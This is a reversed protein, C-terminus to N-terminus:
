SAPIAGYRPASKGDSASAPRSRRGARSKRPGSARTRRLAPVRRWRAVAAFREIEPTLDEVTQRLLIPRRRRWRFPRQGVIAGVRRRDPADPHDQRRRESRRDRDMRYDTPFQRERIIAVSDSYSFSLNSVRVFM